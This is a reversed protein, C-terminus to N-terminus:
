KIGDMIILKTTKRIVVGKINNDTGNDQNQHIIKIGIITIMVDIIMKDIRRGVQIMAIMVGIIMGIIIMIRDDLSMGVIQIIVTIMGSMRRLDITSGIETTM